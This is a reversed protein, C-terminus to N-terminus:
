DERERLYRPAVPSPQFRGACRRGDPQPMDCVEGFESTAWTFRRCGDCQQSPADDRLHAPWASQDDPRNVM